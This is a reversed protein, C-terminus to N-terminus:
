GTPAPSNARNRHTGTVGLISIVNFTLQGPGAAINCAGGDFSSVAPRQCEVARVVAPDYSLSITAAALGAADVVEVPVTVQSGFALTYNPPSGDGIRVLAPAAEM